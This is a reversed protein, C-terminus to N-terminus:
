DVCIVKHPCTDDPVPVLEFGEPCRPTDDHPITVPCNAPMSVCTQTASAPAVCRYSDAGLGQGQRYPDGGCASAALVAFGLSRFLTTM